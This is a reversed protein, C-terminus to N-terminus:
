LPEVCSCDVVGRQHEDDAVVLQESGPDGAIAFIDGEVAQLPVEKGSGADGAGLYEPPAVWRVLHCGARVVRVHTAPAQWACAQLPSAVLAPILPGHQGARVGPAWPNEDGVARVAIGTVVVCHKTGIGIFYAEEEVEVDVLAFAGPVKALAAAKAVAVSHGAAKDESLGFLGLVRVECSRGSVRGVPKEGGKLPATQAVLLGPGHVCATLALSCLGLLPVALRHTV